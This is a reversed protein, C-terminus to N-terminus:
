YHNTFCITQTKTHHKKHTYAQKILLYNCRNDIKNPNLIYQNIDRCFEKDEKLDITLFPCDICRKVKFKIEVEKM